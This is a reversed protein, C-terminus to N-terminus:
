SRAKQIIERAEKANATITAWDQAAIVDRKALWSGGVAAVLPSGMYSGLNDANVGGLPIYSLGLHQYPAAINKLHGLGGTSGAPFFKLVNCGFELAGEIDSPTCIGPAFPLGAEKAAGVVRPNFGPAVAFAAGADNAEKVQGPTLVTGIGAIMEPVEAKIAKLSDIAADTRLTLEMVNVGGALLAKALPVANAAHDIVLVAVIGSDSVTTKLSDPIM